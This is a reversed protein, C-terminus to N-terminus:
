ESKIFTQKEKAEIKEMLKVGMPLPWFVGNYFGVVAGFVANMTYDFFQKNEKKRFKPDRITNDLVGQSVGYVFGAGYVVKLADKCYGIVKSNM